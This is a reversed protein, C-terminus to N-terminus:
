AHTAGSGDLMRTVTEGIFEIIPVIRVYDMRRPGVVGVAGLRQEGKFFLTAVMGLRGSATVESERGIMVQTKSVKLARKWERVIRGRDHLASVLSRVRDSQEFDKEKFLNEAGAVHVEADDSECIFLQDVIERLLACLQVSTVDDGGHIWLSTGEAVLEPLTTTSCGRFRHTLANAMKELQASDPDHDLRLVRRQIVGGSTVVVGLVRCGGLPVLSIAEVMPDDMLPRVAVGAERTVDATLQALWELGEEPERRAAAIRSTLGQRTARSLGRQHGSADLHVRLGLDTPVCGASTHPRSLLGGRELESMINRMTASSLGLGSRRALQQSAVPQGSRVYLDVVGTLVSLQRKSLGM